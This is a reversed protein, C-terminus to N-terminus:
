LWSTKGIVDSSCGKVFWILIQWFRIVPLFYKWMKTGFMKFLRSLEKFAVSLMLVLLRLTFFFNKKQCFSFYPFCYMYNSRISLRIVTTIISLTIMVVTKLTKIVTVTALIIVITTIITRIMVIM